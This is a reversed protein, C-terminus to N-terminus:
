SNRSTISGQLQFVTTQDKMQPSQAIIKILHM